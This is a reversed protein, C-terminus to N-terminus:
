RFAIYVYPGSYNTYPPAVHGGSIALGAKFGTETVTLVTKSHAVAPTERTCVTGYEGGSTGPKAVMVLSPQFGLEVEVDRSGDNTSEYSGVVYPKSNALEGLAADIERNDRNFDEARITDHPEWQNLNYHETKTM